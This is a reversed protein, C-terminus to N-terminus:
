DAHLSRTLIAMAQPLKEAVQSALNGRLPYDQTLCAGAEAHLIVGLAAIELVKHPAETEQRGAAHAMLAGLCGSLVDGTGGVSLTSVRYPSVLMHFGQSAQHQGVLTNAGKIIWVAPALMCLARLAAVRDAQIDASPTHLLAGAEGPHPTLIDHPGLANLPLLHLADADIVALPRRPHSLLAHLFAAAQVTRGMGCGIVLSTCRELCTIMAPSLETPWASSESTGLPLTMCDPLGAKIETCLSAPAAVTVLGAGTRLAARAALHAAGTLGASGGVILVHGFANKYSQSAPLPALASVFATHDKARISQVDLLRFSAPAAAQACPPIGIDVVRVRGTYAQASPMYLGVKAAQFTVTAHAHLASPSATGSDADLGSPIDLALVFATNHPRASWQNVAALLAAMAPRLPGHFGTGLLGDVLITAQAWDRWLPHASLTAFTHAAQGGLAYFPTGCARAARVHRGTTGTYARLPRTHLVLPLAGQGLLRRALCAADGGNNGGGMLLCIKQGTLPGKEQILVSLAAQAANEMLVMEPIGARLSCADWERMEAATTLPPCHHLFSM